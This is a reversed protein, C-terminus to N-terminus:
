DVRGYHHGEVAHLSVHLFHVWRRGVELRESIDILLTSSGGCEECPVTEPEHKVQCIGEKSHVEQFLQLM